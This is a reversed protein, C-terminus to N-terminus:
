EQKVKLSLLFCNGFHYLIRWASIDKKINGSFMCNQKIDELCIKMWFKFKWPSLSMWMSSSIMHIFQVNFKVIIYGTHILVFTYKLFWSWNKICFIYNNSNLFSMCKRRLIPKKLMKYRRSWIHVKYIIALHGM